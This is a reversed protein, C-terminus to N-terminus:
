PYTIFVQTQLISGQVMRVGIGVYKVDLLINSRHGSSNMYAEHANIANPHNKAINEACRRYSYGAEKIRDANRKKDPNEHAFFNRDIMDQSHAAAIKAMNNDYLLVPLNFRVRISNILYFGIKEYSDTYEQSPAPFYGFSQETNYDIVQVATLTGGNINDYFVTVYKNSDYFIDKQDTNTLNYRTNGKQIFTTPGTYKNSLTSRVTSKASGVKLTELSMDSSNSYLGVVKDNQIGIMVFGTYNKHYVHWYFGYESKETVVPKGFQETVYSGTKGIINELIIQSTNVPAKTPAATPAPAKTPAATPAPAKTPEATVSTSKTPALTPSPAKTPEADASPAKTPTATPSPEVTTTIIEDSDSPTQTGSIILLSEEVGESSLPDLSKELTESPNSTDDSINVISSSDRFSESISESEYSESKATSSSSSSSSSSSESNESSSLLSSIQMYPEYIATEAYVACGALSM